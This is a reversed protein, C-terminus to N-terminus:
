DNKKGFLYRHNSDMVDIIMNHWKFQLNNNKFNNFYIELNMNEFFCQYALLINSYELSRDMIEDRYNVPMESAAWTSIFLSNYIEASPIRILENVFHCNSEYERLYHKQIKSMVPLDLLIYTGKFGAQFCVKAMAGYGCGVELIVDMDEIKKNCYKEFQALHYGAHIHSGSTSKDHLYKKFTDNNKIANKWKDIKSLYAYEKKLIGTDGFFMTSVLSQCKYFEEIPYDKLFQEISKVKDKWFDTVAM